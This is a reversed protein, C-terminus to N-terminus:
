KLKWSKDSVAKGLELFCIAYRQSQMPELCNSLKGSWKISNKMVFHASTNFDHVFSTFNFENKCNQPNSNAATMQYVSTLFANWSNSNGQQLTHRVHIKQMWSQIRCNINSSLVKKLFTSNCFLRFIIMFVDFTQAHKVNGQLVCESSWSSVLVLFFDIFDSGLYLSNYNATM